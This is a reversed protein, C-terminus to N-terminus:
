VTQLNHKANNFKRFAVFWDSPDVFHLEFDQPQTLYSMLLLTQDDDILNYNLLVNLNKMVLDKLLEWKKTGAVIHCGQIYVDGTYIINDIPRTKDIDTMNFFHIKDVDFDYTWSKPEPITHENRCYGFDIWATLDTGVLGKEIADTVYLSKFINVLVYDSHWYEILQPNVVKEYYAPDNMIKEIKNKVPIMSEPLYSDVVVVKTRNELGFDRRCEYIRKAFDGTTYVVMDNKLQALNEFFSFYTDVSRHQHQPLVRGRYTTPLSGRGIDFFATVVTIDSM